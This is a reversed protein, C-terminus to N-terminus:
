HAVKQITSVGNLITTFTLNARLNALDPDTALQNGGYGPALAKALHKMALDQMEKADAGTALLAYVCGIQYHIQSSPNLRHCQELDALALDKHQARAHLVARGTLAPAYNPDRQLMETLVQIADQRRGLFESLVHARNQGATFYVSDFNQATEFDILAEDPSQPLKSLGRFIWDEPMKPTATAIATLVTDAEATQGLARLNRSLAMGYRHSTPSNHYAKKLQEVALTYNRMKEYVLGRNYWISAFNPELDEAAEYCELAKDYQAMWYHCNGQAVWTIACNPASAKAAAFATRAEEYRRQELYIQGQLFWCIFRNPSKVIEVQILELASDLDRQFYLQTIREIATLGQTAKTDHLYQHPQQEIIRSLYATTERVDAQKDPPLYAILQNRHAQNHSSSFCKLALEGLEKGKDRSGGDAFFLNAEANRALAIFSDYTDNALNTRSYTISFYIAVTAIVAAAMTLALSAATKLSSQNRRVFKAMLESLSRNSAYKLPMSLQQCILDERLQGASQYRQEPEKALCKMVIAALDQPIDHNCREPSEAKQQYREISLEIASHNLSSFDIPHKGTLLEYLVVGIAYIDSTVSSRDQSELLGVLQEPAMYPLTGGASSRKETGQLQNRSLNFDLLMVSGDFGLLVNAPKIDGHLLGKNHAYELGSALEIAIRVTTQFSDLANWKELPLHLCHDTTTEFSLFRRVETTSSRLRQQDTEIVHVIDRGTLASHNSPPSMENQRKKAHLMADRLTISGLFPMCLIFFGDVNQTSYLPVINSHQLRALKQSEGMPLSTIKLVVVRNALSKQSALYVRSFAGHGLPQLIRFDGLEDNLEVNSKKDINRASSDPSTIPEIAPATDSHRRHSSGIGSIPTETPFSEKFSPTELDPLLSGLINAYYERRLFVGHVRHLRRDEYILSKLITTHSRIEPFDALITSLYSREGLGWNWELWIRLIEATAEEYLPSDQSPIYSRIHLPQESRLDREFCDILEFITQNDSQIESM